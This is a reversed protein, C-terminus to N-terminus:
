VYMTKLKTLGAFVSAGISVLKANGQLTSCLYM